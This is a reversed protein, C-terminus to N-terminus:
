YIRGLLDRDINRPPLPQELGPRYSLDSAEESRRSDGEDLTTFTPDEDGDEMTEQAIPAGVEQENILTERTDLPMGPRNPDLRLAEMFNGGNLAGSLFNIPYEVVQTRIEDPPGRLPEKPKYIMFSERIIKEAIPLAVHGGTYKNGLSSRIHTNDYGVWTAVVLDNTFGIFWADRHSSSTGTKGAVCGALDSMKAATGRAVTGELIRRLQYFAVRDIRNVPTKSFRPRHYLEVGNQSVSDIFTPMPREGINAVTAYATAMDILKADQTGLVSAPNTQAKEHIGLREETLGIYKLGDEPTDGIRLSLRVTPRNLSKEIARRITVKGLSAAGADYNNPSWIKNGVKISIPADLLQTNPQLGLQLAALYVFPKLTSGPPRQTQTVRNVQELPFSFGGVMALVKGTKAELVVTSGQVAPRVRVTAATGAENPKVYLLDYTNLRVGGANLALVKGDALGVRLGRVKADPPLVVALPWQVDYLKPRVVSMVEQWTAKPKKMKEAISGESTFRSLRRGDAAEEYDGLGDQLARTAIKQLGSHITSKVVYSSATLSGVNPLNRANKRIENLFYFGARANPSEFDALKPKFAQAAPLDLDAVFRDKASDKNLKNVKDMQGLVYEIREQLRDLHTVPSYFTPGRTLAALMAAETMNVQKVSKGFYSQAAMDVGWSARGLYVYNLYLELIEAKSMLSEVRLALVMERIKREFTLDDGTLLNKVVQQTITSGGQPRGSSATNSMFARIIGRVDLGNHEYFRQDETAVFALQVSKPIDRIAIWRRRNNDTYIESFRNGDDDLVLSSGPLKLGKLKNHDPLDAVARNFFEIAATLTQNSETEESSSLKEGKCYRKYIPYMAPVDRELKLSATLGGPGSAVEAAPPAEGSTLPKELNEKMTTFLLDFNINEAGFKETIFKCGTRLTAEAEAQESAPDFHDKFKEVPKTFLQSLTLGVALVKIILPNMPASIDGRHRSTWFTGLWTFINQLHRLALCQRPTRKCNIKM